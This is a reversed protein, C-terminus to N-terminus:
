REAIPRTIGELESVMRKLRRATLLVKFDKSEKLNQGTQELLAIVKEHQDEGAIVSSILRDMEAQTTELFTMGLAFMGLLHENKYM